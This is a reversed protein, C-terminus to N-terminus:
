VPRFSRNGRDRSGLLAAGITGGLDGAGASLKLSPGNNWLFTILVRHQEIQWGPSTEAIQRRLGASLGTGPPPDDLVLESPLERDEYTAEVEPDEDWAAPISERM